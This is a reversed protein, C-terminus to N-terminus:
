SSVLLCRYQNREVSGHGAHKDHQIHSSHTDAELTQDAQNRESHSTRHIDQFNFRRQSTRQATSPSQSSSLSQGPWCDLPYSESSCALGPHGRLFTFSINNLLKTPLDLLLSFLCLLTKLIECHEAGQRCKLRLHLVVLSYAAFATGQLPLCRCRASRRKVTMAPRVLCRVIM